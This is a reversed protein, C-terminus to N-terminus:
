NKGAEMVEIITYEGEGMVIVDVPYQELIKGGVDTPAPGGLIVTTDPHKEKLTAVAGLVTPLANCIVSIGVVDEVPNMFRYFEDPDPHHTPDHLQYDKFDVSFGHEELISIIRLPGIPLGPRYEGFGSNVLLMDSM